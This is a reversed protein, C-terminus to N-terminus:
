RQTFGVIRPADSLEVVQGAARDYVFLVDGTQFVAHSSDPTWVIRSGTRISGIDVTSGTDLDTVIWNVPGDSTPGILVDGDPSVTNEVILGFGNDFAAQADANVPGDVPSRDGTARDIRTPRCDDDDRACERVIYATSGLGLLEGRSTLLEASDTGLLSVDATGGVVILGGNTDGGVVSAGAPIQVEGASPDGLFEVLGYAVGDDDGSDSSNGDRIQHWFTDDGPGRHVQADWRDDLEISVGGTRDLRASPGRDPAVALAEDRTTVVITRGFITRPERIPFTTVEGTALDLDHFSGDEDIAILRLAPGANADEIVPPEPTGTLDLRVGFDVIPSLGDVFPIIEGTAIEYFELTGDGLRFFGSSDPAWVDNVRLDALNSAGGPLSTIGGNGLDLVRDTRDLDTSRYLLWKGDPSVQASGDDLSPVFDPDLPVTSQAGSVGDVLVGTCVYDVTCTRTLVHHSSASVLEGEAVLTETGEGDRVFVGGGDPVLPRGSPDFRLVGRSLEPGFGIPVKTLGGDAQITLQELSSAALDVGLGVFEDTGPREQIESAQLPVVIELPKEGPRVLSFPQGAPNARSSPTSVLTASRGVVVTPQPTSFNAPDGIDFDRTAGSPLDVERLVGDATLVVITMSGVNTAGTPVDISGNRWVPPLASYSQTPGGVDTPFTDPRGDVDVGSPSAEFADDSTPVTPLQSLTTPAEDVTSVPEQQADDGGSRDVAVLVGGLAILAVATTVAIKWRRPSPSPVEPPASATLDTFTIAALESAAVDRSWGTDDGVGSDSGDGM